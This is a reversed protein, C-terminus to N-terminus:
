VGRQQGMTFASAQHVYGDALHCGDWSEIISGHHMLGLKCRLTRRLTRRYNTGVTSLSQALSINCTSFFPCRHMRRDLLLSCQVHATNLLSATSKFVIQM